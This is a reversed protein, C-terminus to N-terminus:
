WPRSGYFRHRHAPWMTGLIHDEIEWRRWRLKPRLQVPRVPFRGKLALEHLKTHSVGYADAVESTGVLEDGLEDVGVRHFVRTKTPYLDRYTHRGEFWQVPHSQALAQEVDIRRWRPEPLIMCPKVAATRLRVQVRLRSRPVQLLAAAEAITLLEDLLPDEALDSGRTATAM